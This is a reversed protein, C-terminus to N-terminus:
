VMQFQGGIMIMGDFVSKSPPGLGDLDHQVMSVGGTKETCELGHESDHEIVCDIHIPYGM